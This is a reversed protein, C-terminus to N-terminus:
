LVVRQQKNNWAINKQQSAAAILLLHEDGVSASVNVSRIITERVSRTTRM